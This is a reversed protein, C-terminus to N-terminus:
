KGGHQKGKRRAKEILPQLVRRRFFLAGVVPRGARSLLFRYMSRRLRPRDAAGYTL